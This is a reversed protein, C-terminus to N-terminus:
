KQGLFIRRHTGDQDSFIVCDALFCIGSFRNMGELHDCTDPKVFAVTAHPIYEPFEQTNECAESFAHNLVYLDSCRVEVKVVDFPNYNEEGKFVSVNGLMVTIKPYTEIIEMLELSPHKAHIGTLITVHPDETLGMGSDPKYLDSKRILSKQNSLFEDTAEPSFNLQTSSYDHKM